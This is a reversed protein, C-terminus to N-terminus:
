QPWSTDIGESSDQRGYDDEIREIDDEGFYNGTQVEVFVLDDPGPNAVRHPAGIPIDISDDPLLTRTHGAVTVEAAGAVVFWHEARHHHRQYSLRGGSHVTIQKTKHVSGADVVAYSGWPRTDQEFALHAAGVLCADRGLAAPVVAVGRIFRLRAYRDLHSRLPAFLVEGAQAVGGGIVAVRVDVLAATAAVAAALAQGARDFAATAVPDGSRAAAAVDLGTPPRGASAVWGHRVAWSVLAPGSAMTEVCGRAGCSCPEGALDVIIHGLHGANGSPGSHVRGGLVLGGGVGTSVVLCVADPHCRAAGFAHEAATIAVGDCALTVPVGPTLTSMREVLPFDRWDEINVPSVTGADADVPGACSMGVAGLRAGPHGAREVAAALADAVREAGGGVPTPEETVALVRGDRDVLGAAIKTGGIDVALAVERSM